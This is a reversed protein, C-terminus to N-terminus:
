CRAKKLTFDGRVTAGKTLRVQKTQPAYGDKAAILQLPNAGANFWQAYTGDSGTVLTWSGAWSDVQVTAGALPATAGACSTGKVTGALKGWAAPPTVTMTVTVADVNGPADEGITVAATYVGPQPVNPDTTVTVTMSKGPQLTATTPEVSLWGVDAGGAACDELGPLMESDPTAAFNGESGGVKYFGCAAGGRYRAVNSNPLDTWSDSTPDYAFAANTIAGGQVGGTVVLTGDAGASAAAWLDVPADAVPSWSDASPDYAYTATSAASGDNGGTCYVQGDIGACSAFAVSDPYPALEQWSDSAVDYAAVAGSMPLCDATTCGGVTYLKGDLVAQGSASLAEPADAVATWADGAADYVWTDTAPGGDAWGGTAVITGNVVGAALANRAGPLDARPTWSLSEPDYANVAATSASGDGGGITYITGDANVVANDMVSSPYDAIDTWPADQTGPSAATASKATGAGAATLSVPAKLRQLPAGESKSLQSLDQSTGDARQMVFGGDREGLEVNVPATGDNTITFKKSKPAGGLKASTALSTPTVTLHGAALRFDAAVTRNRPVNVTQRQSGHQKATAEFPHRGTLSSFLQYFGDDVAPDAPTPKTTAKDAPKDISTVTAGNIGTDGTSGRVNGVVLGGEVPDCTRNGVFVDDIEWWWGYSADYYHFRVQVESQGAATPLQLVDTRPGRVDTTQHLVTEWTEGGDISVDVDATDGLNNYDQAFGVVPATLDSMDVVPSILSTDQEGGSGYNDSDVIAFGGAGGTLNGQGGPDDFTWVQGNDLEDTVTWGDPLEEGSFDETVGATNFVYGPATCTNDDVELAVDHTVASGGVVVDDTSPLYGPLDATVTMSYTAGSPLDVSYDGTTPDTWVDPAPGAINIKAYLPWGHGGGDTVTGRVTVSPTVGLAFDQTTVTDATITANADETGYGFASASVAYDGTPLRLSYSGDDDTTTSRDTEGDVAVTAGGIPDGTAEDSVTGSLTGTDGVPANELLALADLRGEGFVNNDDATGGCTTNAVDIANDDLLARTGEVDGRLSPAASWLLAIAGVLHPSAMSTGSLSGYSNGPVSSRVNVGPASINPKITGDQGTGRSSFGAIANNVDYAGVSYNITRSGPSGSTQCAPGNNGNSFSGFIGSAAWAAEVDEMFPDNSPVETGWSNNIIDPRKSVDPNEGELDTPALMWEGSAILAEDSPCCGNATIWTAGPAVGIQNAAGDDGVMTGMTHTGHGDNDCPAGGCTGSADFWNYDHTFTGDGNNGRYQDVLAPHDYQVGSDISGVVIDEGTDGFESWVDDANINAVGWEVANPKHVDTGKKPKELKYTFTPYLAEVEPQATLDAALAQSGAQVRIANAAWFSRYATGQEDLLARVDSQSDRAAKTLREYVYQGRATRDTITAAKSLDPRDTFRIWFTAAGKSELQQALQPKIKGLQPEDPAAASTGAPVSVALGSAVLLLSALEV